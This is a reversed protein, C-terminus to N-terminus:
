PHNNETLEMCKEEIVDLVCEINEDVETNFFRIVTYGYNELFNQRIADDKKASNRLHGAGDLEVILKAAPCYFDVIYNEIGQQRRFKFGDLQRGKLHGWLKHEWPTPRNRLQQRLHKQTPINVRHDLM